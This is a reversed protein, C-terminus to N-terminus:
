VFKLGIYAGEMNRKNYFVKVRDNKKLTEGTLNIIGDVTGFGFEVTASKGNATDSGTRIVGTSCFEVNTDNIEKKFERKIRNIIENVLADMLREDFMSEKTNNKNEVIM